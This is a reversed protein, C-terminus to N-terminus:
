KQSDPPSDQQAQLSAYRSEAEAVKVIQGKGVDGCALYNRIIKGIEKADKQSFTDSILFAFAPVDMAKSLGYLTRISTNQANEVNSMTKQSLGARKGLVTQSTTGRWRAFNASLTKLIENSPDM